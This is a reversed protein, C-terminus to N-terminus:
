RRQKRKTKTKRRRKKKRQRKGGGNQEGNIFQIANPFISPIEHADPMDNEWALHYHHYNDDLERTLSYEVIWFGGELLLEEMLLLEILNDFGEVDGADADPALAQERFNNINEENNQIIYLISQNLENIGGRKKRTKKRRKRGGRKKRTRRKGGYSAILKNIDDGGLINIKWIRAINGINEQYQRHDGGLTGYFEGQNEAGKWKNFIARGQEDLGEFDGQYIYVSGPREYYYTEGPVLQNKDVMQIIDGGRKKRTKRKGTLYNQQTSHQCIGIAKGYGYKKRLKTVCRHVRTGEPM